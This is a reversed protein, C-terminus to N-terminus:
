AAVVKAPNRQKRCRACNKQEPNDRERGCNTCVGQADRRKILERKMELSRNHRALFQQERTLVEMKYEHLRCYKGGNYRNLFTPCMEHACKRRPHEVQQLSDLMREYDIATM